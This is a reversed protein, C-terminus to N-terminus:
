EEEHKKGRKILKDLKAEETNTLRKLKKEESKNVEDLRSFANSKKLRDLRSFVSGTMPEPTKQSPIIPEKKEEAFEDFISDLKKLKLRERRQRIEEDLNEDKRFEINRRPTYEQAPAPQQGLEKQAKEFDVMQESIDAKIETVQPKEKSFILIGAALSIVGTIFLLGNILYSKPFHSSDNPDTGKKIEDYDNVGDNDSDPDNPDTSVGNNRLGLCEEKNTLGDNDNDPLADAETRDLGCEREERETMGDGDMDGEDPYDRSDDPDSGSEVEEKDLYGDGDTDKKNPDSGARHEERNNLGDKDNDLDGDISSTPDLNHEVEWKDPILDGDGDYREETCDIDESATCDPDCIYDDKELCCDGKSNTCISNVLLESDTVVTTGDSINYCLTVDHDIQIPSLYLKYSCNTCISCTSESLFYYIESCENWDDICDLSISTGTDSPNPTINLYPPENVRCKDDTEHLINIRKMAMTGNNGAMDSAFAELYYNSNRSLNLGTITVVGTSTFTDDALTRSMSDTVKYYYGYIGSSDEATFNANINTNSCSENLTIIRTESPSTRDVTFEITMYAVNPSFEFECAVPYSYNKESLNMTISHIKKYIDDFQNEYNTGYSCKSNKNTEVMLQTAYDRVYGEPAWSTIMASTSLNISFSVSWSDATFNEAKNMCNAHYTYSNGDQLPPNTYQTLLVTNETSFDLDETNDFTYNMLVYKVNDDDFRCITEDDTVIDMFIEIKETAFEPTVTFSEIVPATKDVSITLEEPFEDNIYGGTTNCIIYVIRQYNDQPLSMEFDTITHTFGDSTSFFNNVSHIDGFTNDPSFSYKCLSSQNSTSVSLEFIEKSSVSFSPTILAVDNLSYQPYSEDDTPDTGEEIEELDLYGDGDSDVNRPNTNNKFEAYNSLGDDDPDYNRDAYSNNNLNYQGEWQDDM